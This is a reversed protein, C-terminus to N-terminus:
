YDIGDDELPEIPFENYDARKQLETQVLIMDIRRGSSVGAVAWSNLPEQRHVTMTTLEPKFAVDEYITYGHEYESTLTVVGTYLIENNRDFDLYKEEYKINTDYMRIIFLRPELVGTLYFTDKIYSRMAAQLENIVGNPDWADPRNYLEVVSKGSALKSECFERLTGVQAETLVGSLVEFKYPSDMEEKLMPM